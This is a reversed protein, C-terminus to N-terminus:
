FLVRYMIKLAPIRAVLKKRLIGFSRVCRPMAKIASIFYRDGSANVMMIWLFSVPILVANSCPVCRSMTMPNPCAAKERGCM